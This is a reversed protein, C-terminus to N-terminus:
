INDGVPKDQVVIFYCLFFFSSINFLRNLTVTADLLEILGFLNDADSPPVTQNLFGFLETQLILSLSGFDYSTKVIITGTKESKHEELRLWRKLYEHKSDDIDSVKLLLDLEEEGSEICFLSDTELDNKDFFRKPKNVGEQGDIQENNM